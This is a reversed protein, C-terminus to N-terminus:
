GRVIIKSYQHDKSREIRVHPEDKGDATSFTVIDSNYPLTAGAFQMQVQTLARVVIEFGEGAGEEFYRIMWQLGTARDILRDLLAALTQTTGLDMIDTMSALASWQGLVKNVRWTPATASSDNIFRAILYEIYEERTWESTGGYLYSNGAVDLAATRNGVILGRTDRQNMGPVWDVEFETPGSKSWFSTGIMTKRLDQLPGYATFTQVGSAVDPNYHVDRTEPSIQGVFVVPRRQEAVLKVRVWWGALDIAERQEDYEGQHTGKTRGYAWKFSCSDLDTSATHTTLELLELEPLHAWTGAWTRKVEFMPTYTPRRIDDAPKGIITTAM